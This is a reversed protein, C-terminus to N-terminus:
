VYWYAMGKNISPINYFQKKTTEKSNLKGHLSPSILLNLSIRPHNRFISSGREIFIKNRRAYSVDFFKRMWVKQSKGWKNLNRYHSGHRNGTEKSLLKKKFVLCQKNERMEDEYSEGNQEWKNKRWRARWTLRMIKGTLDKRPWLWYLMLTYLQKKKFFM